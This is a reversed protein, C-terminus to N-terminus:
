QQPTPQPQPQPTNAGTGSSRTAEGRLDRLAAEMETVLQEQQKARATAEALQADIDAQDAMRAALEADRKDAATQAVVLKNRATALQVQAFQAAQAQEARDVSSKAVAIKDSPMPTSACAVIGFALLSWLANRIGNLSIM